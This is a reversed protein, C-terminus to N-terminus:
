DKDITRGRRDVEKKFDSMKVFTYDPYREKMKKFYTEKCSFDDRYGIVKSAFSARAEPTDHIVGDKYWFKSITVGFKPVVSFFTPKGMVMFQVKVGHYHTEFVHRLDKMSCYASGSEELSEKSYGLSGVDDFQLHDLQKKVVDIPNSSHIYFDLDNAVLGQSWDRPAGGALICYPDILFLRGLIYDAITKQEIIKKDNM